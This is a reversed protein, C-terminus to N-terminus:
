FPFINRSEFAVAAEVEATPMMSLRLNKVHVNERPLCAVIQEGVFPNSKLMQRIMDMAVPLRVESHARAEDPLTQRAAAVVSLNEGVVELQLMKISDAGLDLGIPQVQSRTLRLM